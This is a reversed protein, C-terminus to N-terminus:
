NLHLYKVKDLDLVGVYHRNSSVDKMTLAISNDYASCAQFNFRMNKMNESVSNSRENGPSLISLYASAEGDFNPTLVVLQDRIVVFGSSLYQSPIKKSKDMYTLQMGNMLKGNSQYGLAVRTIGKKGNGEKQDMVFFLQGKQTFDASLFTVEHSDINVRYKTPITLMMPKTQISEDLYSISCTFLEGDLARLTAVALAGQHVVLRPISINDADHMIDKIQPGEESFLVQKAGSLKAKDSSSKVADPIMLMGVSGDQTVAVDYISMGEFRETYLLTFKENLVIITEGAFAEEGSKGFTPVLIHKSGNIGSVVNFGQFNKRNIEELQALVVAKGRNTGLVKIGTYSGTKQQYAGVIFVARRGDDWGGLVCKEGSAEVFSTLMASSFKSQRGDLEFGVTELRFWEKPNARFMAVGGAEYFLVRDMEAETPVEELPNWNYNQATLILGLFLGTLTLLTRM